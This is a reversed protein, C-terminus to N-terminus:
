GNWLDLVLRRDVDLYQYLMVPDDCFVELVKEAQIKLKESVGKCLGFRIKASVIISTCATAPLISKLHDFVHGSPSRILHSLINTDLLYRHAEM